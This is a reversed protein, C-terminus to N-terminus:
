AQEEPSKWVGTGWHQDLQDSWAALGNPCGLRWLPTCWVLWWPRVGDILWCAREMAKVIFRKVTV